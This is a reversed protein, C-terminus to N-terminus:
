LFYRRPASSLQLVCITLHDSHHLLFAFRIAHRPMQLRMEKPKILSVFNRCVFSGNSVIQPVVSSCPNMVSSAAHFNIHSYLTPSNPMM